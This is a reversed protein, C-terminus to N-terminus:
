AERLIVSPISEQYLTDPCYDIGKPWVITGFNVHVSKFFELNNLPQFAKLSLLPKANFVRCEGNTFTIDLTFDDSAHVSSVRPMLPEGYLITDTM